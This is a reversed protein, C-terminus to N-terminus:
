DVIGYKLIAENVLWLQSLLDMGREVLFFQVLRLEVVQTAEEAGLFGEIYVVLPERSLVHVGRLAHAGCSLNRDPVVLSELKEKSIQVGKGGRGDRERRGKGAAEGGFLSVLPAGALIYGIVALFAYQVFTTLSFSRGVM